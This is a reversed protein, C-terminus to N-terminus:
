WLSPARGAGDVNDTVLRDDNVFFLASVIRGHENRENGPYYAWCSSEDGVRPSVSVDRLSRGSVGSPLNEMGPTMVPLECPPLSENKISTVKESRVIKLFRVSDPRTALFLENTQVEALTPWDPNDGKSGTNVGSVLIKAHALELGGRIAALKGKVVAIKAERQMEKYHPIAVVALIGIIIIVVLLEILTFGAELESYFTFTRKTVIGCRQM